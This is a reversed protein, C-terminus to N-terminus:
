KYGIHRFGYKKLKKVAEDATKASDDWKNNQMYFGEKTKVVHMEGERQDNSIWISNHLDKASMTSSSSSTTKKADSKVGKIDVTITGDSSATAKYGMTKLDGLLYGSDRKIKSSSGQHRYVLKDGKVEPKDPYSYASLDTGNYIKDIHAQSGGGSAKSAVTPAAKSAAKKDDKPEAPSVDKGNHKIIQSEHIGHALTTKMNKKSDSDHRITLYGPREKSIFDIEGSGTGFKTQYTVTDGVKADKHSFVKKSDKKTAVTSDGKAKDDKKTSSVSKDPVNSSKKPEEKKVEKKPEEKKPEEKKVEGHHIEGGQQFHASMAMAMRMYDHSHHNDNRSWKLGNKEAIEILGHTGHKEKLEKVTNKAEDKSMQKGGSKEKGSPKSDNQAQAPAKEAAKAQDPKVYVTTTIQKGGRTVVKKVPVLGDRKAAKELDMDIAKELQEIDIGAAKLQETNMSKLLMLDQIPLGFDTKLDMTM